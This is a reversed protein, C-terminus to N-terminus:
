IYCKETEAVKVVQFKISLVHKLLISTFFPVANIQNEVVILLADADINILLRELASGEESLSFFLQFRAVSDANITERGFTYAAETIDLHAFFDAGQTSTLLRSFEMMMMMMM